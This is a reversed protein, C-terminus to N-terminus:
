PAAGVVAAGSSLPIYQLYFNCVGATLDHDDISLVIDASNAIIIWDDPLWVAGNGDAAITLTWTDGADFATGDAVDQVLLIATQGAIGLELTDSSTSTIQTTITAAARCLIDGTVTFIVPDASAGYGNGATMASTTDSITIPTGTLLVMEAATDMTATDVLIAAVDTASKSVPIAVADEDTTITVLNGFCTMSGPDLTTGAGDTFFSNFVIAGTGADTFEVCHEGSTHNTITNYAIFAEDCPEDSWIASVSFDGKIICGIVQLRVPGATGNGAEIFHAPAAGAEDNYAECCYILIDNAGDAVDISDLFEWSNTTPKPFTCYDLTFNDGAAEVSIGMTISTIGAIFRLNSVRINAAGIVFEANAHGFTFEPMDAGNGLGIVTIGAIDLDVADAASLTEAHGQAVYIIDGNNASCLVVAEDLTDTANIWNSGDGENDVNSDVYFISGTGVKSGAGVLPDIARMWMLPVNRYNNVSPAWWDANPRGTINWNTAQGFVPLAAMITLLMSLLLIRKM